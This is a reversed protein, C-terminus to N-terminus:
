EWGGSGILPVFIVSIDTSKKYRAGHRDWVELQRAFRKGVPIVLRGRDSIDTVEFRLYDGKNEAKLDVQLGGPYSYSLQEGKAEFGVPDLVAGDSKISLLFAPEAAAYNIDKGIDKLETIAGKEDLSIRFSGTELSVQAKLAPGFCLIAFLIITAFSRKMTM